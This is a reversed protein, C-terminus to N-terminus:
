IRSVALDTVKTRKKTRKVDVWEYKPEKKKPEAKAESESETGAKAEEAGSEGEKADKMEVDKEDTDDQPIEKKEKVTEEYEEEEALEAKDFTTMGHYNLSTRVKVKKPADGAPLDIEFRGVCTNTSPPLKEPEAYDLTVTFPGKRKFSVNKFTPISTASTFLAASTKKGAETGEM